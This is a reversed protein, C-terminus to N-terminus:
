IFVGYALTTFFGHKLSPKCSIHFSLHINCKVDSVCTWVIMTFFILYLFLM